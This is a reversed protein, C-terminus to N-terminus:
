ESLWEMSLIVLVSVGWIIYNWPTSAFLGAGCLVLSLAELTRITKKMRGDDQRPYRDMGGAHTRDRPSGTPMTM